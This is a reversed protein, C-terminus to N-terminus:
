LVTFLHIPNNKSPNRDEPSQHGCGRVRNVLFNLLHVFCLRIYLYDFVYYNFIGQIVFSLANFNLLMNSSLLCFYFVDFM